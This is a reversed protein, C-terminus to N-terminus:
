RVSPQGIPRFVMVLMLDEVDELAPPALLAFAYDSQCHWLGPAYEVIGDLLPTVPTERPAANIRTHLYASTPVAMITEIEVFRAVAGIQVAVPYRDTGLPICLALFGDHTPRAPCVKQVEGRPEVIVVPVTTDGSLVDAFTLPSAFRTGAFNALRLPMAEGALEAPLFMRQTGKQYFLGKRRLGHRAAVPDFLPVMEDTGLNVDHEFAAITAVEHPLPLFMLRAMGAACAERWLRDKDEADARRITAGGVHGVFALCGAQVADRVASQRTKISNAARIPTGDDAYDIVSGIAMTALQELVAVNAAMMDLAAVDFHRPDFFGRKDFGSIEMERLLLYRGAVHVGLAEGLLPAVFNQVSGNYGLDVLMLTDGPAPDVARRVHAALRTALARADALIRRRNAPQQCWRGLAQRATLPDRGACLQDITADDLRLLKGLAPAQIAAQEALFRSLAADSTLSAFTATARSIEIDHASDAAGVARHVRLPLHGDRMMFLWHVQGGRLALAAAEERLWADFGFFLPGLVAQGLRRAPDPEQPLGLALAARHPQPRALREQGQSQGFLMGAVTSELRLQRGIDPEFQRLHLTHVGFPRVGIVDAEHNDGIHLIQDPRAKVGRLVDRYLGHSKPKSWSSSCFVRDILGAVDDGAAGAILQLLQSQDLYTDSVLIVKLGRRRADRMLAVTPAFAHCHRAEAALEAAIAGARTRADARPMIEAYIADIPVDLAGRTTRAIQRARGEGVMRQSPLVGPLAVFLDQPAHCDRWLLTDFCDLSLVKVGPYRDLVGPLEHPACSAESVGVFVSASVPATM